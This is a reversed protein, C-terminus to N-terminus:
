AALVAAVVTPNEELLRALVEDGVYEVFDSKIIPTHGSFEVPPRFEAPGM